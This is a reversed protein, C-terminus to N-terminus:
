EVYTVENLHGTHLQILTHVGDCRDAMEEFTVSATGQEGFLVCEDGVSVEEGADVLESVDVTTINLSVKGVVNCRRGHILM